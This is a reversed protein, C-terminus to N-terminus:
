PSLDSVGPIGLKTGLSKYRSRALRLFVDIGPGTQMRRAAERVQERDIKGQAWLHEFLAEVTVMQEAFMAIMLEHEEKTM